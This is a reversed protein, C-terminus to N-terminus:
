GIGLPVAAARGMRWTMVAREIVGNVAALGDAGAPRVRLAAAPPQLLVAPRSM